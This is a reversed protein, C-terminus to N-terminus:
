ARGDGGCCILAALAGNQPGPRYRAPASPDPVQTAQGVDVDEAPKLLMPAVSGSVVPAM